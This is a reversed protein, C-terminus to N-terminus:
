ALGLAAPAEAIATHLTALDVDCICYPPMLYVTNGLPRVLLDRERFWSLLRPATKAMYGSGSGIECALITGCRRVGTIGSIQALSESAVQQRDALADIRDQVPEDRWIALNANAAACALPNATYSSSHFFMRARDESYHAQYIYESTMTVALPVSGGTLGKSLCLIDPVVGAQQGALLTGTRGWATM